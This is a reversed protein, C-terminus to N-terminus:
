TKSVCSPTEPETDKTSKGKENEICCPARGEEGAMQEWFVEESRGM